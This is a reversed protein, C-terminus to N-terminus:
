QSVGAGDKPAFLSNSRDERTVVQTRSKILELFVAREAVSRPTREFAMALRGFCESGHINFDSKLQDDEVDTWPARRRRTSGKIGQELQVTEIAQLARTLRRLIQADDLANGTLDAGTDPHRGALLAKLTDIHPQLNM